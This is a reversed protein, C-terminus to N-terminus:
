TLAFCVINETELLEHSKHSLTENQFRFCSSICSIQSLFFVNDIHGELTQCVSIYKCKKPQTINCITTENKKQPSNNMRIEGEPKLRFRM